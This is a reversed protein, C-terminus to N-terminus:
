PASFARFFEVAEGTSLIVVTFPSSSIIGSDVVEWNELDVSAEIDFTQGVTGQLGLEIELGDTWISLFEIPLPPETAFISLWALRPRDIGNIQTFEGGVVM